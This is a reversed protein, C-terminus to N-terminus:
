EQEEKNRRNENEKHIQRSQLYQSIENKYLEVKNMKEKYDRSITFCYVIVIL